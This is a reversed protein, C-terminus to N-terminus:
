ESMERLVKKKLGKVKLDFNEVDLYESRKWGNNTKVVKMTTGHVRGHDNPDEYTIKYFYTDNNKKWQVLKYHKITKNNKPGQNKNLDNFKKALLQYQTHEDKQIVANVWKVPIDSPSNGQSDKNTGCAATMILLFVTVALYGIRKM